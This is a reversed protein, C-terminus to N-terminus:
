SLILYSKNQTLLVYYCYLVLKKHAKSRVISIVNTDSFIHFLLQFVSLSYMNCAGIILEINVVSFIFIHCLM